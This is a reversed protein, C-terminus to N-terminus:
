ANQMNFFGLFYNRQYNEQIYIKLPSFYNCILNLNNHNNYNIEFKLVKEMLVQCNVSSLNCHAPSCKSLNTIGDRILIHLYFDVIESM